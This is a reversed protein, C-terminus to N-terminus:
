FGDGGQRGRGLWEEVRGVGGGLFVAPFDEVLRDVLGDDVEGAHEEVVLYVLSFVCVWVLGVVHM